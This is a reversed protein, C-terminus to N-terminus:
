KRVFNVRGDKTRIQKWRDNESIVEGEQTDPAECVRDYDESPTDGYEILVNMAAKLVRGGAEEIEQYILKEQEFKEYRGFQLGNHQIKCGVNCKGFPVGDTTLDAAEHVIIEIKM